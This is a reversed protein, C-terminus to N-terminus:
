TYQQRLTTVSEHQQRLTTVSEHQQRLTTFSEHQQRLTTVSKHQQHQLTHRCDPLPPAVLAACRWRHSRWRSCSSSSRAAGAGPQRRRTGASPACDCHSSCSARWSVTGRLHPTLENGTFSTELKCTGVLLYYSLVQQYCQIDLSVM